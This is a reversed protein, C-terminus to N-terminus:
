KKKKGKKVPAKKKPAAKKSPSSKSATKLNKKPTMIAGRKGSFGKGSPKFDATDDGFEMSAVRDFKEQVPPILPEFINGCERCIVQERLYSHVVNRSGCAPCERLETVDM